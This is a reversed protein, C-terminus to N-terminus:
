AKGATPRSQGLVRLVAIVVLVVVVVFVLISFISSRSGRVCCIIFHNNKSRFIKFIFVSHSFKLCILDLESHVINVKDNVFSTQGM